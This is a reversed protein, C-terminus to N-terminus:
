EATRRVARPQAPASQETQSRNQLGLKLTHCGEHVPLGHEDIKCTELSVPRGCIWCSRHTKHTPSM